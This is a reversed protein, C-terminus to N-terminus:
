VEAIKIHANIEYIYQSNFAWLIKFIWSKTTNLKLYDLNTKSNKKYYM